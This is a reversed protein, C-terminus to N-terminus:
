PGVEALVKERKVRYENDFDLVYAFIVSWPQGIAKWKFVAEGRVLVSRTYIDAAYEIFNLSEYSSSESNLAHERRDYVGEHERGPYLALQPEGREFASASEWLPRCRLARVLQRHRYEELLTTQSALASCYSKAAEVLKDRESYSM